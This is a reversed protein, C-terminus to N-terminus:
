KYEDFVEELLEGTLEDFQVLEFITDRQLAVASIYQFQLKFESDLIFELDFESENEEIESVLCYSAELVESSAIQFNLYASELELAEIALLTNQELGHRLKEIELSLYDKGLEELNKFYILAYFAASSLLFLWIGENSFSISSGATFISCFFTLSISFFLVLDFNLSQVRTLEFHSFLAKEFFSRVRNFSIDHFIEFKKAILAELFMFNYYFYDFTMISFNKISLTVKKTYNYFNSFMYGIARNTLKLPSKM